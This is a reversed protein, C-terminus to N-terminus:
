CRPLHVRQEETSCYHGDGKPLRTFAVPWMYPRAHRLCDTLLVLPSFLLHRFILFITLYCYCLLMSVIDIMQCKFIRLVSQIYYITTDDTNVFSNIMGESMRENMLHEVNM